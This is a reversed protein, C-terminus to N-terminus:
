HDGLAAVDCTPHMSQATPEFLGAIRSEQRTEQKQEALKRRTEALGTLDRRPQSSDLLREGAAFGAVFAPVHGLQESDLAVKDYQLTRRIGGGSGFSVEHPCELPSALLLREGPFQSGSGTERSEPSILISSLLRM